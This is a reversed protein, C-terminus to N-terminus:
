PLTARYGLFRMKVYTTAAIYAFGINHREANNCFYKVVAGNNHASVNSLTGLVGGGPDYFNVIPITPADVSVGGCAEFTFGFYFKHADIVLFESGAINGMFFLETLASPNFAAVFQEFLIKQEPTANLSTFLRSIM